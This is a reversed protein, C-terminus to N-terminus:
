SMKKYIKIAIGTGRIPILRDIFTFPYFILFTYASYKDFIKFTHALEEFFASFFVYEEKSSNLIMDHKRILEQWKKLSYERLHGKAKMQSEPYLQEVNWIDLKKLFTNKHIYRFYKKFKGSHFGEAPTSAIFYGGPKLVRKIEEIAKDEDKIHEIVDAIIVIDFTNDKFPIKTADAISFNFNFNERKFSEKVKEIDKDKISVLLDIYSVDVGRKQLEMGYYAKGCGIDLGKANKKIKVLSFVANGRVRTGLNPFGFYKYIINKIKNDSNHSRKFLVM